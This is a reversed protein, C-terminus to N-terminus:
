AVALGNMISRFEEGNIKEKELLIGMVTSLFEKKQFLYSLVRQEQNKIIDAVVRHKTEMPLHEFNVVGMESMGTRIITEATQLAKEYDNSAGTSRNGLVVEEASSGALMIAIQNELYDKTYLYTDDEPNQRMYGLAGGPINSDINISFRTKGDRKDLMDLKM